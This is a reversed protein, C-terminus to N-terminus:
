TKEQQKGTQGGKRRDGAEEERVHAREKRHALGNHPIMLLSQRSFRHLLRHVLPVQRVGSNVSIHNGIHPNHEASKRCHSMDRNVIEPWEPSNRRAQQQQKARSTNIACTCVLYIISMTPVTDQLQM